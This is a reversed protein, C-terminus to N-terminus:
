VGSQGCYLKVSRTAHRGYATVITFSVTYDVGDAGGSLWVSVFLGSSEITPSGTVVLDSPNTVVSVSVITDGPTLWKTFDLTFSDIDGPPKTDFRLIIAM